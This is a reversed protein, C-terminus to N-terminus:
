AGAYEGFLERRRATVVSEAERITDFLGLSHNKGNHSVQARYRKGDKHLSVGRVGTTNGRNAGSRNQINQQHTALRLHEPLVCARNWCVHDVYMGDPIPGHEREYSYRHVKVTRPAIRIRGYGHGDTSGTWILHEGDWATRAVFAEEPDSYKPRVEKSSPLDISQQYHRTSLLEDVASRVLSKTSISRPM